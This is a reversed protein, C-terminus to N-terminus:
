DGQSRRRRPPGMADDILANVVGFVLLVLAVIATVVLAAWFGVVLRLGLYFLLLGVGTLPWGWGVSEEPTARDSSGGGSPRRLRAVAEDYAERHWFWEWPSRRVRPRAARLPELARADGLRGLAIATGGRVRLSPDVLLPLLFELDDACGIEGLAVVAEARVGDDGDEAVLERLRPRAQDSGIWGLARSAAFRVSSDNADLLRLLPATAEAAQLQGLFTAAQVRNEPDVLARVLYDVDERAKAQWIDAPRERDDSSV